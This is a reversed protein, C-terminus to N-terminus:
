SLVKSIVQLFDPNSNNRVKVLSGFSPGKRKASADLQYTTFFDHYAQRKRIEEYLTIYM